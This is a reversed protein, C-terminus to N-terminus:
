PAINCVRCGNITETQSCRSSVKMSNSSPIQIRNTSARSSNWVRASSAIETAWSLWALSHPTESGHIMHIWSDLNGTAEESRWDESVRLQKLGHQIMSPNADLEGEFSVFGWAQQFSKRAAKIYFRRLLDLAVDCLLIKNTKEARSPGTRM